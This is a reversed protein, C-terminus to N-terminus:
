AARKSQLLRARVLVIAEFVKAKVGQSAHTTASEFHLVCHARPTPRLLVAVRPPAASYLAAQTSASYTSLPILNIHTWHRRHASPACVPLARSTRPSPSADSQQTSASLVRSASLVNPSLLVMSLLPVFQSSPVPFVRASSCALLSALVSISACVVGISSPTQSRNVAS